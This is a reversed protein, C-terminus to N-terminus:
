RWGLVAFHKMEAEVWALDKEVNQLSAEEYQLDRHFKDELSMIYTRSAQLKQRAIASNPASIAKDIQALWSDCQELNKISDARDDMLHQKRELLHHYASEYEDPIHSNDAFVAQNSLLLCSFLFAFLALSSNPKNKMPSERDQAGRDLQAFQGFPFGKGRCEV